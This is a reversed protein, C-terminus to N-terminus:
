QNIVFSLLLSDTSHRLTTNIEDDDERKSKIKKINSTIRTQKQETLLYTADVYYFLLLIVM